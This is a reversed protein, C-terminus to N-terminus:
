VLGAAECEHALAQGSVALASQTAAPRVFRRRCALDAASRRVPLAGRADHPYALPHDDPTHLDSERVVSSLAHCFVADGDLQHTLAAEVRIAHVRLTEGTTIAETQGENAVEFSARKLRHAELAAM